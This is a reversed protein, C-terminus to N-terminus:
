GYVKEKFDKLEVKEYKRCLYKLSLEMMDYDGDDVDHLVVIGRWNERAMEGLYAEQHLYCSGCILM